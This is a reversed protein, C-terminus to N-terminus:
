RLTSLASPIAKQWPAPGKGNQTWTYKRRIPIVLSELSRAVSNSNFVEEQKLHLTLLQVLWDMSAKSLAVFTLDTKPKPHSPDDFPLRVFTSAIKILTSAVSDLDTRLMRLCQLVKSQLSTMNSVDMGHMGGSSACVCEFLDLAMTNLEDGTVSLENLRYIEAACEAYALYAQQEANQSKVTPIGSSWVLAAEKIAPKWQQDGTKLSRLLTTVATFLAAIVVASSCALYEQFLHLFESWLRDFSKSAAIVSLNDSILTALEELLTKSTTDLAIVAEASRSESQAAKQRLVDEQLIKLVLTEFCMQWGTTSLEDAHNKFISLLTQFAGNRVESRKDNVIGAIRYLALLWQAPRSQRAQTVIQAYTLRSDTTKTALYNLGSVPEQTVLFDSVDWFM